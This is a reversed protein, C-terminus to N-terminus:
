YSDANQFPTGPLPHEPVSDWTSSTRSHLGLTNQSPTDNCSVGDCFVRPSRELVRVTILPCATARYIESRLVLKRTKSAARRYDIILDTM